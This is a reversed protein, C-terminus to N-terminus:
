SSRCSGFPVLLVAVTAIAAAIFITGTPADVDGVEGLVLFVEVPLCRSPGFQRVSPRQRTESIKCTTMVGSPSPRSMLRQTAIMRICQTKLVPRRVTSKKERSDFEFEFTSNFAFKTRM